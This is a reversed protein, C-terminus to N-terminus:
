KPDRLFISESRDRACRVGRTKKVSVVAHYVGIHPSRKRLTWKGDAGTRTTGVVLDKNRVVKVRRDALCISRNATVGGHFIPEKKSITVKSAVSNAAGATAVVSFGLALLAAISITAVVHKPKVNEM